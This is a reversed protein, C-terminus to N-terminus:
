KVEHGSAAEFHYKAIGLDIKTYFGNLPRATVTGNKPMPFWQWSM